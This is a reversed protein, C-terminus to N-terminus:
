QATVLSLSVLANMSNSTFRAQMAEQEATRCYVVIILDNSEYDNQWFAAGGVSTIGSSHNEDGFTISVVDTYRPIFAFAYDGIIRVSSSFKLELSGDSNGFCNNFAYGRIFQLASAESWDSTILSSCGAFAYTEITELNTPVDIWELSTCNFFCYGSILTIENGKEFFVAKVPQANAGSNDSFGSITKVTIGNIQKPITIKGRLEVGTAPTLVGRNTISFYKADTTKAYVSQSKYVAYFSMDQTSKINNLEVVTTSSKDRTFGQFAYTQEMPLEDEKTSMPMISPESLYNGYTVEMTTLVTEGDDNFFTMMYNHKEYIIYFVYDMVGSTFTQTAWDSTAIVDDKSGQATSWGYFDYHDKQTMDAYTTYPNDFWTKTASEAVSIKQVGVVTLSGDDETKVFKASYAKTINKVFINLNPYLTTLFTNKLYSEDIAEDNNIYISGTIEPIANNVDDCNTYHSDAAIKELMELSTILQSDTELDANKIYIEGNLVQQAWTEEDYTYPELQYHGNDIYYSDAEDANYAYGKDLKTYPTWNIDTLSIALNSHVDENEKIYYLKDLLKFSDYDMNGGAIQLRTINSELASDGKEQDTLGQIYLGKQAQWNGSADRTPTVYSTILGQLNRAEKLILQTITAPLHLTHLAVGDAFDVSALNMGLARFIQLKEASQFDFTQNTNDDTQVNTFVVEKLLPKGATSVTSIAADFMPSKLKTNKYGPTDNGLIIRQLHTAGKLEFERPYLLSVDGIDKLYNAGYLYLLQEAYQPSKRVGTVVNSPFEMRVPSGEYEVSPLPANDTALTVYSKQYPTLKVFFDADLEHLKIPDGNADYTIPDTYYGANAILGEVVQGSSNVNSTNDVWTDSTTLPDNASTRFKITTGTGEKYNGQTLWSDIFNIRRTLFQTRSLSRDGQLAYLFAGQTDYKPNGDTGQYGPGQTNMISIYKYYEDFNIAILPRAGRMCISNCTDPNAKYWNEIHEVPDQGSYEIGALPARNAGSADNKNKISTRLSQYTSKIDDLFCRYINGWLVSDNTSFCGDKSANVSYEFSPIGTNNIGLQTDIDYFVPYWIYEGGEVQPGWSAMMCNKGRSDYCEFVETMVFYTLTYEKDFHQTFEKKFKALRYEQSDFYYTNGGAVYAEPLAKLRDTAYEAANAQVAAMVSARTVVDGATFSGVSVGDVVTFSTYDYGHVDAYAEFYNDTSLVNEGDSNTSGYREALAAETWGAQTLETQVEELTKTATTANYRLSAITSNSAKDYVEIETDFTWEPTQKNGYATFITSEADVNDPCTSWVWKCAKEWNKMRDLLYKSRWTMDDIPAETQGDPVTEGEPAWDAYDEKLGQIDDEDLGSDAPSYLYDLLDSDSNYRYEFSDAVKPCSGNANTGYGAATDATTGSSPAAFSLEDRNYPDRFSCWGRNNDSFEWCEAADAVKKAKGKKDLVFKQKLKAGNQLDNDAFLKYGYCEDSGKDLNINYRGIYLVSGDSKKHFAMAPFGQVSTRHGGLDPLDDIAASYDNLPHKTYANAVLNAFGTNYSGSSEMYDIKLTFKNTGLYDNDMYFWQMYMPDEEFPGKNAYMIEKGKVKYNRRPYFQSSTGQVKTEAQKATFSAGHHLYYNEVKSLVRYVPVTYSKDEDDIVVGDVVKTKETLKIKYGIADTTADLTAAKDFFVKTSGDTDYFYYKTGTTGLNKITDLDKTRLWAVIQTGTSYNQALTELEGTAYARDLGTNVFEFNINKADAKSYPLADADGTASGQTTFVFYPMLYEDPHETNYTLMSDYDLQYESISSNLKSLGTSQAYMTTDRLDVSYNNLVNAISFGTAYVRFKYLDVDCFDSNFIIYNNNVTFASTDTVYASGSLVGNLYISVLKETKSFVLALNIIRDEVYNVNLTSKNTKFFADQTGLCFGVAGSEDYYNCLATSTSIDSQVTRYVLDDYSKGITPLYAQLFQDYNDYDALRTLYEQYYAEDDVYRTVLKILHEYNQVNRIKFEFEFTQSQSGEASSNFTTAGLPIKFKAGNSIRLCTNNDSDNIWGNNYWNFNEFEGSYTKYIPTTGDYGTTEYASTSTWVGRTVTSEKNSRGAADFNLRLTAKNALTMKGTQLVNFEIERTVGECSIQYDNLTSIDKEESVTADTIEFLEFSNVSSNYEITSPSNNLEVGSKYYRVTSKSSNPNYVLYPIQIKDYNNYVSQYEGLWIIPDTEGTVVRAIEFSLAPVETGKTGDPLEQYLRIKVKHAGHEVGSLSYVRSGQDTSLLHETYVLADDFWYELIKAIAGEVICGLTVTANKYINLSTYEAHQKLALKVCQVAQTKAKKMSGSNPGELIFDIYNYQDAYLKSGFEITVPTNHQVDLKYEKYQGSASRIRWTLTLYTDAPNGQADMAAMPTVTMSQSQGYICIADTGSLQTFNVTIAQTHSDDDGGSGSVTIRKAEVSDTNVETIKYFCGDPENLIIQNVKPSTDTTLETLLFTLVDEEAEEESVTRNGILVGSGGASGMPIKRGDHALYIAGTDAAFYVYGEVGVASQIKEDTGMVPRFVKESM